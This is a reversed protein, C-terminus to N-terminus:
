LPSNGWPDRDGGPEPIEGRTRAQIRVASEVTAESAFGLEVFIQEFPKDPSSDRVERARDAQERTVYGMKVMLEDLEGQPVTDIALSLGSSQGSTELTVFPRQASSRTPVAAAGELSEKLGLALEGVAGVAAETRVQGHGQIEELLKMCTVCLASSLREKRPDFRLHLEKLDALIGDVGANEDPNWAEISATLADLASDLPTPDTM